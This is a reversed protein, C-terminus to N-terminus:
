RSEKPLSGGCDTCEYKHAVLSVGNIGLLYIPIRVGSPKGCSPCWLGTEPTGAQVPVSISSM